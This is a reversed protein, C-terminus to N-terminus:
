IPRLIDIAKVICVAARVVCAVNPNYSDNFINYLACNIILRFNIEFKKIESLFLKKKKIKNEKDFM